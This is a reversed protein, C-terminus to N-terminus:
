LLFQAAALTATGEVRIAFDAAKDGNIDGFVVVVNNGASFRLQGAAGTFAATGRFTFAQNGALITNADIASLDIRDGNAVSFDKITDRQDVPNPSDSVRLLVFSDAGAGGGLIDAGAAGILRDSGGNGILTDNGDGGNITNNAGNGEIVDSDFGGTAGINGTGTLILREISQGGIKFSTAAYVTDDGRGELEIVKDAVNDVHYVDDGYDGRMIDAGGRGDLLDGAEGGDLINVAGDGYLANASVASGILNEISSFSDGYAESTNMAEDFLDVIMAPGIGDFNAYSATDNGAGGFLQDFGFGGELVDDGAGGKLLDNGGEGYVIGVVEGGSSDIVDNGSALFIDGIIIGTNRIRDAYSSGQISGGFGDGETSGSILGSNTIRGSGDLSDFSIAMETGTIRGTNTILAGVGGVTIAPSYRYTSEITGSNSITANVVSVATDGRMVGSNTLSGGLFDGDFYLETSGGIFGANSVHMAQLASQLHIGGILFASSALDIEVSGVLNDGGIVMGSKSILTGAITLVNGGAAIRFVMANEANTVLSAMPGVVVDDYLPLDLINTNDAASTVSGNYFHTAM